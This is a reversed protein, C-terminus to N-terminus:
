AGGAHGAFMLCLMNYGESTLEVAFRGGLLVIAHDLCIKPLLDSRIRKLTLPAKRSWGGFSYLSCHIEHVFRGIGGRLNSIVLFGLM